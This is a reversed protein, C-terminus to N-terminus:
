PVGNHEDFTGDFEFLRCKNSELGHAFVENVPGGCDHITEDALREFNDNVFCKYAYIRFIM